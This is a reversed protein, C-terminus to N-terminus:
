TTEHSYDDAPSPFGAVVSADKLELQTEFSGRIIEINSMVAFTSILSFLELHFPMKLMYKCGFRLCISFRTDYQHQIKPKNFFSFCKSLEPSFVVKTFDIIILLYSFFAGKM